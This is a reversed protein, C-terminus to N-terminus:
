DLTSLIKLDITSTTHAFDYNLFKIKDTLSPDGCVIIIDQYFKIKCYDTAAFAVASLHGKLVGSEYLELADDNSVMSGIWDWSDIQFFRATVRNLYILLIILKGLGIILPYVLSLRKCKLDKGLM